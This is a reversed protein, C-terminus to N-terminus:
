LVVPSVFFGSRLTPYTLNTKYKKETFKGLNSTVDFDHRWFCPTNKRWRYWVTNWAPIEPTSIGRSKSYQLLLTANPHSNNKEYPSIKRLLHCASFAAWPGRERNTVPQCFNAWLRFVLLTGTWVGAAFALELLYAHRIRPRIATMLYKINCSWCLVAYILMFCCQLIYIIIIMYLPGYRLESGSSQFTKFVLMYQLTMM